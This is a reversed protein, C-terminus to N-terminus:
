ALTERFAAARMISGGLAQRARRTSRAFGTSTPGALVYFEPGLDALAGPVASAVLRGLCGNCAAVCCDADLRAKVSGSGIRSALQTLMSLVDFQVPAVSSLHGVTARVSTEASYLGLAPDSSGHRMTVARRLASM